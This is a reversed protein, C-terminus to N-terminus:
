RINVLPTYSFISFICYFFYYKCLEGMALIAKGAFFGFCGCYLYVYHITANVNYAYVVTALGSLITLVGASCTANLKPFFSFTSVSLRGIVNCMGVISLLWISQEKPVNNLQALDSLFIYPATSGLAFFFAVFALAIYTPSKLLQPDFLLLLAHLIPASCCHREKKQEFRVARTVNL